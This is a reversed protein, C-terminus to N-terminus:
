EALVRCPNALEGIGDVSVSVQDGDKLYVPPKRGRGVGAPTGTLILDGPELTIHKTIYAILAPIKFILDATTGDQMKKGNVTCRVKLAHPDEIADATVIWPGIPCFTDLGKGRTWQGDRRRLDRATVDNGVTYGLIYDRAEATDIWRGRKGIVVM